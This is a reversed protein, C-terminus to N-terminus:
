LKKKQTKKSANWMRRIRQVIRYVLYGCIGGITNLLLDDVDFSGVKTILQIIEVLLSLEFSYLLVYWLKRCRRSFVPLFFGFPVFAAINGFLNLCVAQMGLRDAYMIFRRIEKLPILNYQYKRESFTRGMSESFFLFYFLVIFYLLFLIWAVM